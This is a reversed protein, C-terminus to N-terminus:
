ESARGHAEFAALYEDRVREFREFLETAAASGPEAKNLQREIARWRDLIAALPEPSATRDITQFAVGGAGDVPADAPSEVSAAGNTVGSGAAASAATTQEAWSEEERTFLALAETTRRVATALEEFRPDQPEVGRKHQELQRVEATLLLIADSAGRLHDQVATRTTM